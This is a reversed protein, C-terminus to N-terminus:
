FITIKYSYQNLHIFHGNKRRTTYTSVLPSPATSHIRIPSPAKAKAHIYSPTAPSSPSSSFIPSPPRFTADLQDVPTKYYQIRRNNEGDRSGPFRHAPSFEHYAHSTIICSLLGTIMSWLIPARQAM